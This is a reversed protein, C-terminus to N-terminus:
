SIHTLAIITLIPVRLMYMTVVQIRASIYHYPKPTMFLRSIDEIVLDLFEITNTNKIALPDINDIPGLWEFGDINATLM